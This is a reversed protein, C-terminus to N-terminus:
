DNKYGKRKERFEDVNWEKNAVSEKREEIKLETKRIKKNVHVVIVNHWLDVSIVYM